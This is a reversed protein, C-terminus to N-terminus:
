EFVGASVLEVFEEDTMGLIKTCVYETHEGLRPSPMDAQAPTESLEFGQGLHTFLGMDPHQLPWFLNRQRLQPDDYIDAANKVVGAPVGASQLQAMVEEPTLNITWESILGNIEEENKKRSLLTNFRPDDIHETKGIVKCLNAWQENSLVAITCWRDDGKCPYVGHPVAYSCSNGIRSPERGNASYDLLAPLIFYLATEFQSLDLLQGKGTKNRYDLAAILAASAFRPAICDTYASVGLPSPGRDPWGIFNPLGAMAALIMGFAPQQAYPGWSGFGSQRLMIIDPKVKKLEEYGLGWKEMVSPTFNEMVVDAEAVLRKAVELAQPQGMNLAMSFINASFHNFYGSRDIGPKDDKYPASIRLTCPRKSSEVRIVTAGYDAFYKMTLPGVVAWCFAVIKIGSFVGRKESM